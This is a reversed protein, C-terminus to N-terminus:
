SRHTLRVAMAQHTPISRPSSTPGYFTDTKGRSFDFLLHLMKLVDGNPKRFDRTLLQERISAGFGNPLV